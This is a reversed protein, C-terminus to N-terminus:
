PEVKLVVLIQGKAHLPGRFFLPSDPAILAVTHMAGLRFPRNGALSTTGAVYFGYSNAGTFNITQDKWEGDSMILVDGPELTPALQAVDAASSVKHEAARAQCCVVFSLSALVVAAAGIMKRYM